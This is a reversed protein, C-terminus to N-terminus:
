YMIISTIMDLANCVHATCLSFNRYVYATSKYEEYLFLIRVNPLLILNRQCRMFVKYEHLYSLRNHLLINSLTMIVKFSIKRRM